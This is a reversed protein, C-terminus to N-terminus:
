RSKGKSTRLENAQYELMKPDYLLVARTPDNEDDIVAHVLGYLRREAEPTFEVEDIAFFGFLGDYLFRLAPEYPRLAIHFYQHLICKNLIFPYDSHQFTLWLQDFLCMERGLVIPVTLAPLIVLKLQRRVPVYTQNLFVGFRPFLYAAVQEFALLEAPFENRYDPKAIVHLHGFDHQVKSNVLVFCLDSQTMREAYYFDPASDMATMGTIVHYGYRQPFGINLIMKAPWDNILPVGEDAHNPFM